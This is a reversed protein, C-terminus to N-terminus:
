DDLEDEKKIKGTEFDYWEDDELIIFELDDPSINEQDEKVNYIVEIYRSSAKELLVITKEIGIIDRFM